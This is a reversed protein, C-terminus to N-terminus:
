LSASKLNYARYIFIAGTIILTVLMMPLFCHGLGESEGLAVRIGQVGIYSAILVLEAKIWLILSFRLQLHAESKDENVPVPFNIVGPYRSLVSLLIYIFSTVYLMTPLMGKSDWSDPMSAWGFHDPIIQPVSSWNAVIYILYTLLALLSIFELVLEVKTYRPKESTAM